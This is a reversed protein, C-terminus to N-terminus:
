ALRYLLRSLVGTSRCGGVSNVYSSTVSMRRQDAADFTGIQDFYPERVLLQAKADDGGSAYLRDLPVRGSEPAEINCWTNKMMRCETDQWRVYRGGIEGLVRM